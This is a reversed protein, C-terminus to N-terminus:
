KTGGELMAILKDIQPQTLYVPVLPAPLDAWYKAAADKSPFWKYVDSKSRGDLDEKYYGIYGNRENCDGDKIRLFWRDEQIPAALKSLWYIDCYDDECEVMMKEKVINFLKITVSSRHKAQVVDGLSFVVGDSLRKVSHISWHPRLNSNHTMIGLTEPDSVIEDSSLRVSAIEWDKEPKGERGSSLSSAKFSEWWSVMKDSDYHTKLFERVMEDTIQTNTPTSM